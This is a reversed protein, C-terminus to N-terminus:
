GEMGPLCAALAIVRPQMPAASRPDHWGQIGPMRSDIQLAKVSHEPRRLLEFSSESLGKLFVQLEALKLINVFSDVM